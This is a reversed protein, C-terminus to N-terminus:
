CRKNLKTPTTRVRQPAQAKPARLAACGGNTSCSKAWGCACFVWAGMNRPEEQVWFVSTTTPFLDLAARLEVDSLPYLQELRIIAVRDAKRERRAALLDYYVKGSCLLVREAERPQVTPDAIVRQYAGETLEALTSIAEPHRLLSKPSMVILPKRIPRLVQRRLCHFLQAPTTLNVVQINDEASINLFRELRASSHEPGQGEFGHPLLMTLGSLRSWKDECSSIFQDVIVQACNSFDGFQAEWITLADPLDLSYGYDFGLVAMESLPSDIIEVPGQDPTLSGLPLITDGTQYDHLVAHRHSFTGRGCDQGSLRVRHGQAAISAFALM